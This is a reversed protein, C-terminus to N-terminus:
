CNEIDYFIWKYYDSLFIPAEIGVDLVIQIVMQNDGTNCVSLSITCAWISLPTNSWWPIIERMFDAFVAM